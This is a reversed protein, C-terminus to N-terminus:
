GEQARQFHEQLELMMPKTWGNLTKPRNMTVTYIGDETLDSLTETFGATSLAQRLLVRGRSGFVRTRFSKPRFGVLMM